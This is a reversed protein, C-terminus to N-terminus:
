LENRREPITIILRFEPSSLLETRGGCGTVKRMLDSLGGGPVIAGKPPKGNNSVELRHLANERSLCVYLETGEAHRVCNTLCERIASIFTERITWSDPLEGELLIEVGIAAADRMLDSIDANDAIRDNDREIFDAYQKWTRLAAEMEEPTHRNLLVQRAALLGAGLRDHLKTKFSLIEEEKTVAAVNASLRRIDRSIERLRKKQRELEMKREYLETVDSFIVETFIQGDSTGIAKESFMWAKGDPFLLIPEDDSIRIIGGTRSCEGLASHLEDLSQMDSQTMKRYLRYMQLNCLKIMGNETFYCIGAPLTDFAERISNRDIIHRRQSTKALCISLGCVISIIAFGWLVPMLAAWHRGGPQGSHAYKDAQAMVAIFFSCCFMVAGSARQRLRAGPSVFYIFTWLLMSALMVIIMLQREPTSVQCLTNM